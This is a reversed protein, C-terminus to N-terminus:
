ITFYYYINTIILNNDLGGKTGAQNSSIVRHVM